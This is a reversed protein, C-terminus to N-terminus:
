VRFCTQIQKHHQGFSGCLTKLRFEAENAHHHNDSDSNSTSCPDTAAPVQYSVIMVPDRPYLVHYSSKERAVLEIPYGARMSRRRM